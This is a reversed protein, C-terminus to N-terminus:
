PSIDQEPDMSLDWSEILVTGHQGVDDPHQAAYRYVHYSSRYVIRRNEGVGIVVPADPDFEQLKKILESNKMIVGGVTM